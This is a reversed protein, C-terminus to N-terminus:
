IEDRLIRTAIVLATAGSTSMLIAGIANHASVGLIGFIMGGIIGGVLGLAIDCMVGYGRGNIIKGALWGSILGIFIWAIM